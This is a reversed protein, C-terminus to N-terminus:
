AGAGFAKCDFDFPLALDDTEVSDGNSKLDGECRFLELEPRFSLQEYVQAGEPTADLKICAANKSRLYDIAGDMLASAVGRRRYDPHVLMMGIWALENGYRITTVVGAPTGDWEGLFCGEPEHSLFRRWDPAMQNWGASARIEDAFTLDDKELPRINLHNPM